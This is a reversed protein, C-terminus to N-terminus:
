SSGIESRVVVGFLHWCLLAYTAATTEFGTVRAAARHGTSPIEMSAAVTAVTFVWLFGGIRVEEPVHLGVEEDIAVTFQAHVYVVVSGIRARSMNGMHVVVMAGSNGGCGNLHCVVGLSVGFAWWCLQRAGALSLRAFQNTWRATTMAPLTLCLPWMMVRMVWVM